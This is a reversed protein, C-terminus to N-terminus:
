SRRCPAPTETEARVGVKMKKVLGTANKSEARSVLDPSSGLYIKQRHWIMMKKTAATGWRWRRWRQTPPSGPSSTGTWRLPGDSRSIISRCSSTPDPALTLRGVPASSLTARPIFFVVVPSVCDASVLNIPGEELPMRRCLIACRLTSRVKATSLHTTPRSTAPTPQNPLPARQANGRRRNDQGCFILLPLQSPQGFTFQAPIRPFPSDFHYLVIEECLRALIRFIKTCPCKKHVRLTFM